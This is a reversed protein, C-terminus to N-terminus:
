GQSSACWPTFAQAVPSFSPLLRSRCWRSRCDFNDSAAAFRPGVAQFLSATTVRIAEDGAADLNRPARALTWQIGLSRGARERSRTPCEIPPSAPPRYLWRSDPTGARYRWGGHAADHIEFEATASCTRFDDVARRAEIASDFTIGARAVVRHDEANLWWSTQGATSRASIPVRNLRGLPRSLCRRAPRSPPWQEWGLRTGLQSSVASHCESASYRRHGRHRSGHPRDTPTAEDDAQRLTM